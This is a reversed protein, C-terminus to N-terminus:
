TAGTWPRGERVGPAYASSEPADLVSATAAAPIPVLYLALGGAGGSSMKAIVGEAVARVPTDRPAM